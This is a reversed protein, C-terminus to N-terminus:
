ASDVTEFPTVSPRPQELSHGLLYATLGRAKVIFNLGEGDGLALSCSNRSMWKGLKDLEAQDIRAPGVLGLSKPKPQITESPFFWIEDFGFLIQNQLDAEILLKTPLLLGNEVSRAASEIRKLEPSKDLLARVDVNSDVCTILAFKTSRFSAPLIRLFDHVSSDLWGAVYQQYHMM